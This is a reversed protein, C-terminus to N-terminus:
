SFSIFHINGYRVDRIPISSEAINRALIIDSMGIDGIVFCNQLSINHEKIAKDILGTLLKKCTCKDEKIHPCCYVGDFHAGYEALQKQLQGIKDDFDNQSLYGRSINSQNTIVIALVDNENLKKIANISLPYFKFDRSDDIGAGGLTGQMDLFVTKRTNDM